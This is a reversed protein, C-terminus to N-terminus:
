ALMLDVVKRSRIPFTGTEEGNAIVTIPKCDIETRNKKLVHTHGAHLPLNTSARSTGRAFFVLFLNREPTKAFMEAVHLCKRHHM